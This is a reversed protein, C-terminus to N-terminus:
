KYREAGKKAYKIAKASGIAAKTNNILPVYPVDNVSMADVILSQIDSVMEAKGYKEAKEEATLDKLHICYQRTSERKIKCEM